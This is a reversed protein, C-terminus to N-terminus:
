ALGQSGLGRDENTGGPPGSFSVAVLVGNHVWRLLVHGSTQASGQPCAVVTGQDREITVKRIAPQDLCFVEVDGTSARVARAQVALM